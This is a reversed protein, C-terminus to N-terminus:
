RDSEKNEQPKSFELSLSIGFRTSSSEINSGIAGMILYNLGLCLRYAPNLKWGAGLGGTFGSYYRKFELLNYETIFVNNGEVTETVVNNKGSLIISNNFGINTFLDFNTNLSILFGLKIPISLDHYSIVAYDFVIIDPPLLTERSASTSVRWYSPQLCLRLNKSVFPLTTGFNLGFGPNWHNEFSMESMISGDSFKLSGNLVQIVPGVFISIPNRPKLKTTKTPITAPPSILTRPQVFNLSELCENYRQILSIIPSESYQTLMIEDKLSECEQLLYNLVGIYLNRDKKLEYFGTISDKEVFYRIENEHILRFLGVRGEVLAM